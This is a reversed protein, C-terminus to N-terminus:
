YSEVIVIIDDVLPYKSQNNLLEVVGHAGQGAAIFVINSASCLRPTEM